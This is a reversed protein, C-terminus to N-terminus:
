NLNIDLVWHWFKIASSVVIDFIGEAETPVCIYYKHCDGPYPLVDNAETCDNDAHKTTTTPAMPTTSRDFMDCMPATGGCKPNEPDYVDGKAM